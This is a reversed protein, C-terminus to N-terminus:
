KYYKELIDLIRNMDQDDYRHDVIISLEHKAYSAGSRLRDSCKEIPWHVPLFINHAFMAKRVKDRNELWIPVFLPVADKSIPALTNIGLSLVGEIIQSANRKRIEAIRNWDLKELYTRSYDSMDYDAIDSDIMEEGREYLELYVKDNYYGLSRNSKLLSAALKYESFRSPAVPQIMPHKTIVWSGDPVPLAKRFSTFQYDALSTENLHFPAQVLDKIIILDPRKMKLEKVLLENDVVGQYDILLIVGEQINQLDAYSVNLNNISYFDYAMGAQEVSDIITSCLYDPLYVIDASFVNQCSKLIHYLAARGSSYTYHSKIKLFSSNSTNELSCHDIDFEGGIVSKTEM